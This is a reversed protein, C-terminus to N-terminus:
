TKTSRSDWFHWYKQSRRHNVKLILRNLM